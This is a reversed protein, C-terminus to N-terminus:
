CRFSASMGGVQAPTELPLWCLFVVSAEKRKKHFSGWPGARGRFKTKVGMLLHGQGEQLSKCWKCRREAGKPCGCTEELLCPYPLRSCLVVAVWTETPGVSGNSTEQCSTEM